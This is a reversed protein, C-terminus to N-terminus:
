ALARAKLRDLEAADITGGDLPERAKAIVNLLPYEAALPLM